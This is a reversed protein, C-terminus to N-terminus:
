DINDFARKALTASDVKSHNDKLSGRLQKLQRRVKNATQQPSSQAYLQQRAITWARQLWWSLPRETRKALARLEAAIPQPLSISFKM